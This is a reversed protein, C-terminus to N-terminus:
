LVYSVTKDSSCASGDTVKLKKCHTQESNFEAMLCVLYFSDRAGCEGMALSVASLLNESDLQGIYPAPTVSFRTSYTAYIDNCGIRM